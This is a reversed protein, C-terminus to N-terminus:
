FFGFETLLRHVDFDEEGRLAHRQHVEDQVMELALYRHLGYMTQIIEMDEYLIMADILRSERRDDHQPTNYMPRQWVKVPSILLEDFSRHKRPPTEPDLAQRKM